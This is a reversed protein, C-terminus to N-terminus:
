DLHRASGVSRKRCEAASRPWARCPLFGMVSLAGGACFFRGGPREPSSPAAPWHRAALRPLRVHHAAHCRPPSAYAVSLIRQHARVGAACGRATVPACHRAFDPLTAYCPLSPLHSM